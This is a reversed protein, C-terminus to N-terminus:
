LLVMSITKTGIIVIDTQSIVYNRSGEEKSETGKGKRDSCPLLSNSLSFSYRINNILLKLYSVFQDGHM